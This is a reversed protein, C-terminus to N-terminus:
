GASRSLTPRPLADILSPPRVIMPSIYSKRAVEVSHGIAAAAWEIGREAAAYSEASRRICHFMRARDSPLGAGDLIKRLHPWIQRRKWPFPFLFRRNQPRSDAILALTQQHLYYVRDARGGKLLAAPAILIGSGLDVHRTELGMTLNLRCGTDWFVLLGLKWCLPVPVGSWCGSLSDCAAFIRDVEELTWAVPIRVPEKRKPIKPPPGILGREAAHHWLTVLASRKSNVTRPARGDSLWRMWSLISAKNLDSVEPPRELFRGYLGLAIALQQVSGATLNIHEDCYDDLLDKLIM